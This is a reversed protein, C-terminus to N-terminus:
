RYVDTQRGRPIVPVKHTFKLPKGPHYVSRTFVHRGLTTVGSGQDNFRSQGHRQINPDSAKLKGSYVLSRLLFGGSPRFQALAANLAIPQYSYNRSLTSLSPVLREGIPPIFTTGLGAGIPQTGQTLVVGGGGGGGGTVTVSTTGTFRRNGASTLTRGTVTFSVTGSALNLNSRPDITVIADPIGDSNEDVPDATVTATPYAVGNVVITTPDIQTAPAFGAAANSYVYIPLSTPTTANIANPATPSGVSIVTTIATSVPTQLPLFAGEVAFVGGAADRSTTPPNSGASQLSFGPAGIILDGLTDNDTTRNQTTTALRGSVSAGLYGPNVSNTVNIQTAFIPTSEATALSVVGSLDANGPIVYVTGNGNNFGPSGIAIENLTDSNIRGLATLSWGTLGGVQAGNFTVSPVTSPIALLSVTGTLQNANAVGEILYAAGNGNNAAPAGILIDSLGDGNFDGASAVSFGTLDGAANGTFIVGPVNGTTTTSGIRGLSISTFNSTTTAFSALNTAGYVLYARAPALSQRPAGILLDGIPQSASTTAGDFNGAPALSFGAMEGALSGTFIIGPVGGNQGLQDVNTIATTASRLLTGSVVYAAGVASAGNFNAMPAGLALDVNGDTILDGASSVATGLQSGSNNTVFTRVASPYTSPSDLDVNKIARVLSTSGYVVYVRGSNAATGDANQAGPAGIAFDALGDGNIDGLAAVSSGLRSNTQVSTNFILGDFDFGQTGNLPNSQLSNGLQSIDGVRQQANLGLFDAATTQNVARSGFVLYATSNNGSGTTFAAGARTITPAGVVFDDYGDGNTDGVDTVSAGLGAAAQFGSELVGYPQSAVATLDIAMLQRGELVEAKPSVVGRRRRTAAARIGRKDFLM